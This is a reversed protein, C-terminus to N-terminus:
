DLDVIESIVVASDTTDVVEEIFVVEIAVAEKSPEVVVGVMAVAGLLLVGPDPRGVVGCTKVAGMSGLVVRAVSEFTLVESDNFDVAEDSWVVLAAEVEIWAAISVVVTRVLILGLDTCGVCDCSNAVGMSGLVRAVTESALLEICVVTEVSFSKVTEVPFVTVNLSNPEVPVCGEESINSKSVDDILVVPIGEVMVWDSIGSFTEVLESPVRRVRTEVLMEFALVRRGTLEEM